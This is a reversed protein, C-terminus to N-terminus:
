GRGEQQSLMSNLLADVEADSMGDLQALMAEADEGLDKATPPRVTADLSTDEALYRALTEITPYDWLLTPPLRCGLFNELDGSLNVAEVSSLGCDAFDKQTDIRDPELELERALRVQLWQALESETHSSAGAFLEAENEVEPAHRDEKGNWSPNLLQM